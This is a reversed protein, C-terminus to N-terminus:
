MKWLIHRWKRELQLISSEFAAHNTWYGATHIAEVDWDKVPEYRMLMVPNQTFLHYEGDEAEPAIFGGPIGVIQKDPRALQTRALDWILVQGAQVVQAVVHYPIGDYIYPITAHPRIGIMHAGLRRLDEAELAGEAYDQYLEMLRQNYVDLYYARPTAAYGLGALIRVAIKSSLICSDPRGTHAEIVAQLAPSIADIYTLLEKM